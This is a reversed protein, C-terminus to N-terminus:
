VFRLVRHLENLCLIIESAKFCWLDQEAQIIRILVVPHGLLFTHQIQHQQPLLKILQIGAYMTFTKILFRDEAYMKELVVLEKKLM